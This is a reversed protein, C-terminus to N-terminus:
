KGESETDDCKQSALSLFLPMFIEIFQERSLNMICALELAEDIFWPSQGNLKKTLKNKTLITSVAEVSRYTLGFERLLGKIKANNISNKVITKTSASM